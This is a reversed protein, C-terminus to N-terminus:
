REVHGIVNVRETIDAMHLQSAEVLNSAVKLVEPVSGAITVPTSSSTTQLENPEDLFWTNMVNSYTIRRELTFTYTSYM